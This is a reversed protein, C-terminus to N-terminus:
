KLKRTNDPSTKHALRHDTKYFTGHPASLFTYEKTNPHFTRYIDILDMQNMTDILKMIERNLNQRSLRDMPSFPANFDKLILTHHEIHSKLKLLTEKV